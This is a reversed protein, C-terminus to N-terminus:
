FVIRILLEHKGPYMLQLRQEVNDLGIGSQGKEPDHDPKLHISNHVDFDLMNDRVQLGIKIHSATLLSIGHKFANELAVRFDPHLFLGPM